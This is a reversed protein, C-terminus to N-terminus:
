FKFCEFLRVPERDGALFAVRYWRHDEHIEVITGTVTRRLEGPFGASNDFNAGPIFRVEDGIRM